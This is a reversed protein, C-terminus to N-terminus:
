ECALALEFEGEVEEAPVPDNGQQPRIIRGLKRARLQMKFHGKVRADDVLRRIALSAEPIGSFIPIGYDESIAKYATVMYDFNAMAEDQTAGTAAVNKEVGHVVWRGTAKEFFMVLTISIPKDTGDNM